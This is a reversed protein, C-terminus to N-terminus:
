NTQSFKNEKKEDWKGKGKKQPLYYPYYQIYIYDKHILSKDTTGRFTQARGTSPQPMM